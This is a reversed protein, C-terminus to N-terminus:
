RWDKPFVRTGSGSLAPTPIQKHAKQDFFAPEGHLLAKEKASFGFGGAL